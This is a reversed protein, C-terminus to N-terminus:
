IRRIFQGPESSVIVKIQWEYVKPENEILSDRIKGIGVCQVKKKNM